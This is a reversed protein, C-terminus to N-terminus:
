VAVMVGAFAQLTGTSLRSNRLNWREAGRDGVPECGGALYDIDPGGPVRLSMAPLGLHSSVVADLASITTTM